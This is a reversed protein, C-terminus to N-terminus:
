YARGLTPKAWEAKQIPQKQDQLQELLFLRPGDMRASHAYTWDSHTVSVVIHTVSVVFCSTWCSILVKSSFIAVLVDKFCAPTVSLCWCLGRESRCFVCSPMTLFSNSSAVTLSLRKRRSASLIACLSLHYSRISVLFLLAEKQDRCVRSHLWHCWQMLWSSQLRYFTM